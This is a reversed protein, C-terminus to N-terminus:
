GQDPKKGSNFSAFLLDTVRTNNASLVTFSDAMKNNTEAMTKNSEAMIKNSDAMTKNSEAISEFSTIIKANSFVYEKHTTSAKSLEDEAFEARKTLVDIYEREYGRNRYKTEPDDATPEGSPASKYENDSLKEIEASMNTYFKTLVKKGVNKSGSAYASLNSAAIGSLREIEKLPYKKRLAAYVRRFEEPTQQFTM